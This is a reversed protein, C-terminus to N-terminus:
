RRPGGAREGQQQKFGGSRVSCLDRGVTEVLEGAPEHNPRGAFYLIRITPKNTQKM